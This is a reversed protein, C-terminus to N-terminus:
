ACPMALTLYGLLDWRVLVSSGETIPSPSAFLTFISPTDFQHTSGTDLYIEQSQPLSGMTFPKPTCPVDEPTELQRKGEFYYREKGPAGVDFTDYINFYLQNAQVLWVVTETIKFHL